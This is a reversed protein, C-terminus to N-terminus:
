LMASEAEIRIGVVKKCSRWTNYKEAIAKLRLMVSDELERKGKSRSQELLPYLIKPFLKRTKYRRRSIFLFSIYLSIDMREKLISEVISFLNDRYSRFSKNIGRTKFAEPTFTQYSYWIASLGNSSLEKLKAEDLLLGNTTIVTKLSKDNAFKVYKALDRKLLPEGNAAFSINKTLDYDAIDEIAKKYSDLDLNTRKRKLEPNPCFACRMNCRNTVEIQIRDFKM